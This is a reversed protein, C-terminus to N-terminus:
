FLRLKPNLELDHCTMGWTRTIAYYIIHQKLISNCVKISLGYTLTKLISVALKKCVNAFIHVSKAFGDVYEDPWVTDPDSLM